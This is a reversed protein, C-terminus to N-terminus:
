LHLPIDTIMIDSFRTLFVLLFMEQTRYSVGVASRATLITFLLYLLALIHILDGIILLSDM